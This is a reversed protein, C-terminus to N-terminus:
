WWTKKNKPMSSKTEDVVERTSNKVGTATRNWIDDINGEVIWAARDIVKKGCLVGKEIRRSIEM